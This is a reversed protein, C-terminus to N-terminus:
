YRNNNILRGTDCDLVVIKDDTINTYTLTVMLNSTKRQRYIFFIHLYLTVIIIYIM